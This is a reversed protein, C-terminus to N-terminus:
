TPPLLGLADHDVGGFLQVIEYFRVRVLEDQEVKVHLLAVPALDELLVPVLQEVVKALPETILDNKGFDIAWVVSVQGIMVLGLAVRVEGEEIHARGLEERELVLLPGVGAHLIPKEAFSAVADREQWGGFARGVFVILIINQLFWFRRRYFLIASSIRVQLIHQKRHGFLGRLLGLL